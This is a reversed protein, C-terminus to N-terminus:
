AARLPAAFPYSYPRRLTQLKAAAGARRPFPFCRLDYAPAPFLAQAAEAEDSRGCAALATVRHGREVLGKLLVYYWRAAANGFPLPPEIMAVVVRLPKVPGGRRRRVRRVHRGVDAGAPRGLRPRRPGALRGPGAALRPAP